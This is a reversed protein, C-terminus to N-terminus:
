DGCLCLPESFNSLSFHFLEVCFIECTLFPPKGGSRSYREFLAPAIRGEWGQAKGLQIM